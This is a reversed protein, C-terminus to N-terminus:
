IKKSLKMKNIMKCMKLMDESAEMKPLIDIHKTEKETKITFSNISGNLPYSEIDITVLGKDKKSM